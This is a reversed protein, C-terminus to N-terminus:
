GLLLRLVATVIGGGLLSALAVLWVRRRTKAQEVRSEEHQQSVVEALLHLDAAQEQAV